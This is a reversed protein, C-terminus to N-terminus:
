TILCGKFAKELYRRHGAGVVVLIREAGGEILRRINKAMHRNREEVLVKYVNPYRSSLERMMKEIIEEAPVKRLDRIGTIGIKELERKRGFLGFTIDHLFRLKERWSLRDSFRRLTIVIDRDILAIRRGSKEALRFATLMDSGPPSGVYKGLRKQIVSGLLAFLFGKVGVEKMEKLSIRRDEKHLLSYLRREDLEIAVVEPDFEKFTKRIERVSERAIHSTGIVKISAMTYPHM